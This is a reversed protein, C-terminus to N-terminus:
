SGSAEGSAWFTVAAEVNAAVLETDGLTAGTRDSGLGVVRTVHTGHHGFEHALGAEVGGHGAIM